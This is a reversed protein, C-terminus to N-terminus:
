LSEDFSLVGIFDHGEVLDYSLLLHLLMQEIFEPLSAYGMGEHEITGFAITRQRQCQGIGLHQEAIARHCLLQLM